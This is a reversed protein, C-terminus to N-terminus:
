LFRPGFYLLVFLPIWIGLVFYAYEAKEVVHGCQKEDVRGTVAVLWYFLDEFFVLVLLTTHFGITFWVISGYADNDWRTNSAGLEFWRALVVVADLLVGIGGWLKIGDVDFRKAARAELYAAITAAILALLTLTPRLLDPLPTRLPPWSEFNRRLYIYAVACILLTTGETVMFGLNGWWTLESPGMKHRPLGSVDLYTRVRDSM